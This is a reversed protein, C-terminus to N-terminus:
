AGQCQHTTALTLFLVTMSMAGFFRGKTVYLCNVSCCFIASFITHIKAFNSYEYLHHERSIICYGTLLKNYLLTSHHSLIWSRHKSGQVNIAHLKKFISIDLFIAFDYTCFFEIEVKPLIRAWCSLTFSPRRALLNDQLTWVPLKQSNKEGKLYFCFFERWIVFCCFILLSKQKTKHHSKNHKKTITKNNSM